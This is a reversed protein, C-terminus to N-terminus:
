LNKSFIYKKNRFYGWGNGNEYVKRIMFIREKGIDIYIRGFKPYFSESVLSLLIRKQWKQNLIMPNGTGDLETFEIHGSEYKDTFDFLWTTKYRNKLYFECRDIVEEATISSHQLEIISGKCQRPDRVVVDAIHEGNGIIKEVHCGYKESLTKWARHWETEGKYNCNQKTLHRWHWTNIDGCVSTMDSKCWPCLAREKPYPKIREGTEDTAYLM